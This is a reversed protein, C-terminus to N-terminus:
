NAILSKLKENQFDLAQKLQTEDIYGMEQLIQGLSIDRRWHAKLAEDLQEETIINQELLVQGLPRYSKLIIEKKQYISPYQAELGPQERRDAMFKSGPMEKLYHKIEAVKENIEVISKFERSNHRNVVAVSVSVLSAKRIKRNRDRAIIFGRDRDAPTYHFPVINDFLCIFNQCFSVYKDVSTIFVFDDGGIHGIFDDKNGFKKMTTYLIYGAQMIIRDGKRYGYSDNFFKFNDIDIYGFSFSNNSMIRENLAEEILRGGPFGTLPTACYSYQARKIAMEIRVRLDLPDPPKILYDDVGQKLHLLQERLQRKNILTIVPIFATMLDEKLINCIHLHAKSASYVDVVIADPAIKKVQNVDNVPSDHLFVEYGWGDFCFSLVKKLNEDSSIILIRKIKEQM